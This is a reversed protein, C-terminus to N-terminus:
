NFSSTPSFSTASFSSENSSSMDAKKGKAPKKDTTKKSSKKESDFASPTASSLSESARQKEREEIHKKIEATVKKIDIKDLEDKTALKEMEVAREYNNLEPKSEKVRRYLAAKYNRAVEPTVNMIDEIKKITREHILDSQSQERSMGSESNESSNDDSSGGFMTEFESYLNMRRSGFVQTDQKNKTGGTMNTMNTMNNSGKQHSKLIDKIYDETNYLSMDSNGANSKNCKPKAMMQEVLKDSETDLNNLVSFVIEESSEEVTSFRSPMGRMSFASDAPNRENQAQMRMMIGLIGDIENQTQKKPQSKQAFISSNTSRTSDTPIRAINRNSNNNGSNVSPEDDTCIYVGRENRIKPNAGHQILVNCLDHNGNELAIHLATNGDKDQKNIFNAVNRSSLIKEVVEHVHPINSYFKCVYHLVTCKNTPDEVVFDAEPVINHTIMFALASFERERCAILSGNAANSSGNNTNWFGGGTMKSQQSANAMNASNAAIPAFSSTASETGYNTMTISDKNNSLNIYNM